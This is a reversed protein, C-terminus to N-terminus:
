LRNLFQWAAQAFVMMAGLGGLLMVVTIFGSDDRSLTSRASVWWAGVILLMGLLASTALLLMGAIALFLSVPLRVPSSYRRPAPRCDLRHPNDPGM